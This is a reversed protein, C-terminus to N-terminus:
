QTPTEYQSDERLDTPYVGLAALAALSCPGAVALIKSLDMEAAPHLLSNDKAEQSLFTTAIAILTKGETQEAFGM